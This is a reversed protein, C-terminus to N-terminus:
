VGAVLDDLPLWKLFPLCGLLTTYHAGCNCAFAPQSHSLSVPGAALTQIRIDWGTHHQVVFATLSKESQDSMKTVKSQEGDDDDTGAAM